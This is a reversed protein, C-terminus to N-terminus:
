LIDANVRLLKWGRSFVYLIGVFTVTLAVNPFRLLTIPAIPNVPRHKSKPKEGSPDTQKPQKMLTEPLILFICLWICFAFIALFWFNARWGLGQSLYGGIIPRHVRHM